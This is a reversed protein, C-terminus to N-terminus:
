SWKYKTRFYKLLVIFCGLVGGVLAFVICIIARRPESKIEMIAPPDIYDFVYYENAEILALKQTEKQLLQSIVEKVESFNTLAIQENLYTISKESAAKDKKRFFSNVQNVVIEIWEKAIYPSQHKMTITIFGTESDEGISFHNLFHEFSEQPSPKQKYPYSYDRVWASASFDYIVEDYHITNSEYDWRKLAMLDPLFINPLVSNEFFSLSILKQMAEETNSDEDSSGPVNFGALRGISSFNKLSRSIDSSTNVPALLAKSQFINPLKLSYIVGCISILFTVLIIILKGKWLIMFLELLDMGDDQQNIYNSSSNVEQM